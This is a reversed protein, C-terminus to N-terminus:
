LLPSQVSVVWGDGTNSADTTARAPEAVSTQTLAQEGPLALLTAQLAMAIALGASRVAATIRLM